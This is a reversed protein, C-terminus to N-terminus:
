LSHWWGLIKFTCPRRFQLFLAPMLGEEGWGRGWLFIYIYEKKYAQLSWKISMAIDIEWEKFKWQKKPSSWDFLVLLSSYHKSMYVFSNVLARLLIKETSLDLCAKPINQSCFFYAAQHTKNTKLFKRSQITSLM